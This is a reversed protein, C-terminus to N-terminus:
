PPVPKLLLMSCRGAQTRVFGSANRRHQEQGPVLSAHLAGDCDHPGTAICGTSGKCLATCNVAPLIRISPPCPRRSPCALSTHFRSKAVITHSCAALARMCQCVTWAVVAVMPVVLTREDAPLGLCRRNQRAGCPPPPSTAYPRWPRCACVSEKM